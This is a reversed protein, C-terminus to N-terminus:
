PRPSNNNWEDIDVKGDHETLTFDIGACLEPYKARIKECILHANENRHVLSLHQIVTRLRRDHRRNNLALMLSVIALIMAIIIAALTLNDTAMARHGTPPPRKNNVAVPGFAFVPLTCVDCGVCTL